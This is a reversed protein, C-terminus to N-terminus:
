NKRKSIQKVAMVFLILIMPEIDYRFRNNEGLEFLNGIIAIYLINFVMFSILYYYQTKMKRYKLLYRFYYFALFIMALTFTIGIYRFVDLNMGNEKFEAKQTDSLTSYQKQQGYFVINYFDAYNSIKSLHDNYIYRYDTPSKLFFYFSMAVSKLYNAPEYYIAKLSENMYLKSVPVFYKHNYNVHRNFDKLSDELCSINPFNTKEAFQRYTGAHSFPKISSLESLKKESILKEVQEKPLTSIAIKALNMGTWSTTITGFLILNKIVLIFIVFAPIAASFIITKRDNKFFFLMLLFIMLFWIPHYLSRTLVILALVSFLLVGTKLNRHKEFRDFLYVSLLMLFLVPYSYFLWNEYLIQAPSIVFLTSIILSLVWRGTIKKLIVYLLLFIFFGLILYLLNFILTEYGFGIKLILGIFLNFLPPQSHLYFISEALHKKLLSLDQLQFFWTIPTTDFRIESFYFILRSSVFIIFLYFYERRNAKEFNM